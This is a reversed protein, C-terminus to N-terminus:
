EKKFPTCSAEKCASFSKPITDFRELYPALEPRTLIQYGEALNRIEFARGSESYVINLEGIIHEILDENLNEDARSIEEANLPADSAFLVAEVIQSPNM